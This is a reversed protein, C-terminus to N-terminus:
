VHLYLLDIECRKSLPTEVWNPGYLLPQSRYVHGRALKRVFGAEIAQSLRTENLLRWTACSRADSESRRESRANMSRKAWMDHYPTILM